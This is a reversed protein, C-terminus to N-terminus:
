GFYTDLCLYQHGGCADPWFPCYGQFPPYEVTFLSLFLSLFCYIIITQIFYKILNNQSFIGLLLAM